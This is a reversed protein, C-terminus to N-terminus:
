GSIIEYILEKPKVPEASIEFASELTKLLQDPNEHANSHIVCLPEGAEITEGTKRL